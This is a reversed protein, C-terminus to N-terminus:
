SMWLFLISAFKTFRHSAAVVSDGYGDSENAM